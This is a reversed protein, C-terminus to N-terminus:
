GRREAEDTQDKGNGDDAKGQRRTVQGIAETAFPDDFNRLDQARDKGGRERKDGPFMEGDRREGIKRWALAAKGRDSRDELAVMGSIMKIVM